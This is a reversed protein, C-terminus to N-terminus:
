ALDPYGSKIRIKKHLDKYAGIYQKAITFSVPSTPRSQVLGSIRQHLFSVERSEGTNLSIKYGTKNM